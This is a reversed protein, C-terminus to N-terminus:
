SVSSKGISYTSASVSTLPASHDARLPSGFHGNGTAIVGHGLARHAILLAREGDGRTGVARGEGAGERAPEAREFLEVALDVAVGEGPAHFHGHRHRQAEVGLRSHVAVRDGAGDIRPREPIHRDAPGPHPLSKPATCAGPEM